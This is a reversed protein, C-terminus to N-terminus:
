DEVEKLINKQELKSCEIVNLSKIYRINKIIYDVDISYGPIDKLFKVLFTVRIASSEKIAKCVSSILSRTDVEKTDQFKSKLMMVTDQIEQLLRIKVSMPIDINRLDKKMEVYRSNFYEYM